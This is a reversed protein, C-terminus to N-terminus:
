MQLGMMEGGVGSEDEREDGVGDNVTYSQFGMRSLLSHTGRRTENSGVTKMHELRADAKQKKKKKEYDSRTLTCGDGFYWSSTEASGDM